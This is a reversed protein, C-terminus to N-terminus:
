DWDTDQTNDINEKRILLLIVYGTFIVLFPLLLLDYRTVSDPYNKLATQVDLEWAAYVSWLFILFLVFSKKNSNM